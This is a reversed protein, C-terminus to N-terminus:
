EKSRILHSKGSELLYTKNSYQEVLHPDHSVLLTTLGRQHNIMHITEMIESRSESDLYTTPEDLLLILPDQALARALAVKQQEGGSLEHVLEKAFKRIGVAEMAEYAKEWDSPKQEVRDWPAYEWSMVMTTGDGYIQTLSGGGSMTVANVSSLWRAVCGNWPDAAPFLEFVTETTLSEKISDTASGSAPPPPMLSCTGSGEGSTTAKVVLTGLKKVEYYNVSLESEGQGLPQGM